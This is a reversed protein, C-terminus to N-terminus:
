FHFDKKPFLADLLARDHHQVLESQDDLIMTNGNEETYPKWDPVGEAKPVGSHAFSTWLATMTDQLKTDERGNSFVFPIESTHYAGAEADAQKTFVYAYVPAGGQAAKHNMVELTTPRFMVDVDEAGAPDENPYAKAYLSKQEDTMIKYKTSPFITTFENLNTGILLPVNRGSEAFGEKTVPDTPLFDTGSVPQLLLGYGTNLSDPIKHRAAVVALAKDSAEMLKEVPMTQLKEIEDPKINLNKLTEETSERSIAAPTFHGGSLRATGSEVIGKQFLGRASPASMLELVKSGGGSEGFITVNGPDGGFSAINKQIWKLADVMDVSGINASDKYKEGYASLDLHGLVNLRHNVAVVVVDGKRALNEGDYWGENASGSVYGGGHFWVMVPKKEGKRISPTWINLNLNNDSTAVDTILQNSGFLYQPAIPGYITADRVGKWPRVPSAKVFREVADGYPVGLYQYIGNQLSGRIKGGTVQVISADLATVPDNVHPNYAANEWLIQMHNQTGGGFAAQVFSMSGISLLGALLLGALKKGKMRNGRKGIM